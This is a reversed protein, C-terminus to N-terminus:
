KVEISVTKNIVMPTVQLVKYPKKSYTSEERDKVAILLKEKTLYLEYRLYNQTHSPYGHGPNTRSREDGPIHVGDQEVIAWHEVNPIDKPDTIFKDPYM